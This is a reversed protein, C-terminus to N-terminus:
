RSDYKTVGYKKRERITPLVGEDAPQDNSRLSYVKPNKTGPLAVRRNDLTIIKDVIGPHEEPFLAVMDGGNSHGILTVHDYDLGPNSKKLENIVFLINDVGREWFPRRVVQPKGELPLLSDTSLEHQISVVFYGKSALHETLYSYLLYSDRSNQGYGHNFIVVDQNEIKKDTKPLYFAVPIKLNRTEDFLSLTDLKIGYSKGNDQNAVTENKATCGAFLILIFPLIYLKSMKFKNQIIVALKKLTVM